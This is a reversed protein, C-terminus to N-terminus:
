GYNFINNKIYDFIDYFMDSECSISIVGNNSISFSFEDLEKSSIDMVIKNIDDKYTTLLENAVDLKSIKPKFRGLAGNKYNFEPINLENIRINLKKNTKFSNFINFPSFNISNITYNNALIEFLIGKVFSFTKNSSSTYIIKYQNDIYFSCDSYINISKEELLGTLSNYELISSSIRFILIAELIEDNLVATKFGYGNDENYPLSEM